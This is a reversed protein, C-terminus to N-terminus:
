KGENLSELISKAMELGDIVGIEYIEDFEPNDRNVAIDERNEILLENIQALAYQIDTTM